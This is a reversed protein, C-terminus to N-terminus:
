QGEKGTDLHGCSATGATQEDLFKEARAVFGTEEQWPSVGVFGLM